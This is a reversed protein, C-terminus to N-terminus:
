CFNVCISSVTAFDTQLFCCVDNFNFCFFSIKLKSVSFFLFLLESCFVILLNRSCYLKRNNTLSNTWVVFGFTLKSQLTDLLKLSRRKKKLKESSKKKKLLWLNEIFNVTLFACIQEREEGRREEVTWGKREGEIIQIKKRREEEVILGRVLDYYLIPFFM